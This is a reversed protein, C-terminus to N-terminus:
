VGGFGTQGLYWAGTQAAQNAFNTYANAKNQYASGRADAVNFANQGIRGAMGAGLNGLNTASQQGQGARQALKNWYNDAYQTALGQGLAIRDADAGGSFGGPGAAGRSALGRNLGQFGQDVAFKYQASDQFGSMDGNLFAAQRALADNGAALFGAQDQRTLDFQRREEATAADGAQGDARAADEAAGAQQNASYAGAALTAVGVVAAVM